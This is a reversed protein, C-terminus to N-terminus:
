DNWIYVPYALFRRRQAFNKLNLFIFIDTLDPQNNIIHGLL